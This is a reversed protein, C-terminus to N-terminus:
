LSVTKQECASKLLAEITRMNMVTEAHTMVDPKRETFVYDAFADVQRLYQDTGPVVFREVGAETSLVLEADATGPVFAKPIRISGQTGVVDVEDRPSQRFSSHFLATQGDGYDMLGLFDDDVGAGSNVLMGSVAVPPRGLLYQSVNICYCGVDYLSGGGYDKVWRVDNSNGLVFTFTSRVTKVKGITGQRIWNRVTEYQPHFRYMFAEMWVVGARNCTDIIENTDGENLSAPKECLVHKGALASRISWEKHLHNPLGIYVADVEPDALMEDYSHYLRVVDRLPKGSHTKLETQELFVRGKDSASAIATVEVKDSRLAAPIFARQAINAASLIGLRLRKM